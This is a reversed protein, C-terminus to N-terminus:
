SFGREHPTKQHGVAAKRRPRRPMKGDPEPKTGSVGGERRGTRSGGPKSGAGARPLTSSPEPNTGLVDAVTSEGNYIARADALSCGLTEELLGVSGKGMDLV